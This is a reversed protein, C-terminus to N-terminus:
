GPRKEFIDEPCWAGAAVLVQYMTMRGIEEFTWGYKEALNRFV